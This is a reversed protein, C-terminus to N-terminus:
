SFVRKNENRKVVRGPNGVVIMEDDIDRFVIAGASCIVDNGIKLGQKLGSLFGMYVREGLVCGGSIESNAGIVSHRGIVADHGIAAHGQVYVNEGIDVCSTVSAYECIVSGKGIRTSKDIYVSPHILTGLSVNEKLLKEYLVGRIAPEGVAIIVELEAYKAKAERLTLVEEGQVERIEDNDDIYVYNEWRRSQANASEATIRVERGLGGAGYIGLVMKSVEVEVKKKASM